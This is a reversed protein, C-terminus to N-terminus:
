TQPYPPHPHGPLLPRLPLRIFSPTHFPSYTFPFPAPPLPILTPLRPLHLHFSPLRPHLLTPMPVLHSRWILGLPTTLPNFSTPSAPPALPVSPLLYLLSGSAAHFNKLLRM